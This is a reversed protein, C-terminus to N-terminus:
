GISQAAPLKSLGRKLGVELALAQFNVGAPNAVTPTDTFTFAVSDCKQRRLKTRVDISTGAVFTITTLVTSFNFAGPAAGGYADDFDIAINLTSTPANPSTGTLFLRRVRQFAKIAGPHIFSTRATTVIAAATNGGPSDLFVGATAKNLGQTLSISAYYGGTPWWVADAVLYPSAGANITSTSWQGDGDADGIEYSYVLQTGSSSAFRCEQRDALLVASSVANADYQAVGAGIYRCVLDRGMQYWGKASKFIVGNPMVLISRADSCGVDSPLPQPIGYSSNAGASDPGSGFLVYPRRACLFIMKEDISAFGVIGGSTADMEGGLEDSFQLGVSDISQQSFGWQFPQDAKAYFLRNQHTGFAGIPGPAINPLATGATDPQTYLLENAALTADASTISISIKAVTTDNPALAARYFSTGAALTAYLVLQVGSKQSLLLTPVIAVIHDNLVSTVAVPLSPASQHRRGSNDYWEYIAVVQHVGATVAGGANTNIVSVGEPFLPFGQEVLQGPTYGTLSGGALYTTQGLQEKLPAVTSNALLSLRVLGTASNNVGNFISLVTRRTALLAVVGGSVSPTSSPTSVTPVTGARVAGMFGYLAKGVVAGTAGDLIFLSNQTNIFDGSTAPAVNANLASYTQIICVPLFVQTNVSFAKGFIWPGTPGSAEAANVRFSASGHFAAGATILTGTSDMKGSRINLLGTAAIDAQYDWFVQLVGTASVTATVHCPTAATGSNADILLAASVAAGTNDITRGACGTMTGAAISTMFVAATTANFAAVCVGTVQAFPASANTFINSPGSLVSPVGAAQSVRITRVSTTGDGWVYAVTVSDTNGAIAGFGIADFNTLVLNASTLLVTEAGLVTPASTQIVRCRLENVGGNPQIYFVFFADNSFVVRPCLRGAFNGMLTQQLVDGTVEDVLQIGLSLLQPELWVYCTLGAGYACDPSDQTNNASTGATVVAPFAVDKATIGVLGYQGSVTNVTAGATSLSQVTSGNITLLQDNFTALGNGNAAAVVTAVGDRRRPTGDAALTLNNLQNWKAPIVLKPQTKTDLGRTFKVDVVQFDLGSM